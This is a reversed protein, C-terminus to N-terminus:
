DRRRGPGASRGPKTRVRRCAHVADVLLRATPVPLDLRRAIWPATRGGLALVWAAYLQDLRPGHEALLLPRVAEMPFGELARASYVPGNPGPPPLPLRRRASLLRGVLLAGTLALGSGAAGILAAGVVPRDTESATGLTLGELALLTLVALLGAAEGRQPLLKGPTM